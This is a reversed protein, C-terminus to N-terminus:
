QAPKSQKTLHLEVSTLRKKIDDFDITHEANKASPLLITGTLPELQGLVHTLSDLQNKAETKFDPDRKVNGNPDNPWENSSPTDQVAQINTIETKTRPDNQGTQRTQWNRAEEWSPFGSFVAGKFNKVERKCESWTHYIGPNRGKAVAYAENKIVKHNRCSM